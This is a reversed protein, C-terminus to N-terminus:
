PVVHSMNHHRSSTLLGWSGLQHAESITLGMPGPVRSPVEHIKMNPTHLSSINHRARLM